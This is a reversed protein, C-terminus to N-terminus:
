VKKSGLKKVEDMALEVVVIYLPENACDTVCLDIKPERHQLDDSPETMKM